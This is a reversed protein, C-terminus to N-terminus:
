VGLQSFEERDPATYPQTAKVARANGSVLTENIKRGKKGIGIPVDGIREEEETGGGEDFSGGESRRGGGGM